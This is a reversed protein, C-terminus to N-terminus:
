VPKKEVEKNLFLAFREALEDSLKKMDYEVYAQVVGDKVYKELEYVKDRGILWRKTGRKSMLNDHLWTSDAPLKGVKLLYWLPNESNQAIFM